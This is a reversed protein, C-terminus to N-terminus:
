IGENFEFEERENLGGIKNLMIEKKAQKAEKRRINLQRLIKMKM